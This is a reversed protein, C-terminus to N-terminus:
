RTCCCRSGSPTTGSSLRGRGEAAQHLRSPRRRPRLAPARPRAVAQPRRLRPRRGFYTPLATPACSCATRTTASRRRACGPRARRAGRRLGGRAGQRHRARDRGLRAARARLVLHGHRRPHARAHHPHARDHAGHRRQRLGRHPADHISTSRRRSSRSRPGRTAARPRSRGRSARASRSASCSSRAAPTTSTTSARSTTARSSWCARSPTATRRTAARARGHPRGDPEGLRVGGAPAAGAVAARRRLPRRRRPDRWRAHPVVGASLRLNLFGPGAVDVSELDDSAIRRASRRPWTARRGSSSAAGAAPRADDRLRRADPGGPAGAGGRPRPGDGLARRRRRDASRALRSTPWPRITGWAVPGARWRVRGTLPPVARRAPDHDRPLAARGARGAGAPAAADAARALPAAGGSCCSRPSAPRGASLLATRQPPREERERLWAALGESDLARGARDLCVLPWGELHPEVRRREREQVEEVTGQQLPEERVEVVELRLARALRREYEAAAEALPGRARGVAVIRLM